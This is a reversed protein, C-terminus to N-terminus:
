VWSVAYGQVRKGDRDFTVPASSLIQGGMERVRCRLEAYECETVESLRVVPTTVTPLNDYFRISM